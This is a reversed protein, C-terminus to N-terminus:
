HSPLLDARVLLKQGELDDPKQEWARALLDPPAPSCEMVKKAMRTTRFLESLMTKSGYSTLALNSKPLYSHDKRFM